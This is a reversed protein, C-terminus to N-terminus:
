AGAGKGLQALARGFLVPLVKVRYWGPAEVGDRGTFAASAQVAQTMLSEDDLTRGAMAAEMEPWRRAVAEVSGVAICAEGVKGDDRLRVAISVIAVPYDGARRLPLRVHTSLRRAAQTRDIAVGKVLTGPPLARRLQLFTPVDVREARGDAWLEVRADLCMLAPVLDAAAFGLACLNGGLTAANRVAPNASKLAALTLAECSATPPLAQALRAHTLGAGVVVECDSLAVRRLADVQALSVHDRATPEGRLGARMVWTGGALAQGCKGRERLAASADALSTAPYFSAETRTAM